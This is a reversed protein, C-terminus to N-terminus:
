CTESGLVCRKVVCLLSFFLLYSFTCVCMYAFRCVRKCRVRMLCLLACVRMEFGARVVCELLVCMFCFLFCACVLVCM